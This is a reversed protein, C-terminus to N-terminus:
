RPSTSRRPINTQTPRPHQQLLTQNPRTLKAQADSPNLAQAHCERLALSLSCSGTRRLTSRSIIAISSPPLSNPLGSLDDSDLLTILCTALAKSKGHRPIRKASLSYSPPCVKSGAPYFTSAKIGQTSRTHVSRSVM